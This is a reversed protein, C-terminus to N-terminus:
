RILIKAFLRSTYSLELSMDPPEPMKRPIRIRFSRTHPCHTHERDRERNTHKHREGEFGNRLFYHVWLLLFSTYTTHRAKKM